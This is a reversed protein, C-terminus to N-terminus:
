LGQGPPYPIQVNFVLKQGILKQSLVRLHETSVGQQLEGTVPPGGANRKFDYNTLKVRGDLEITFTQGYRVPVDLQELKVLGDQKVFRERKASITFTHGHSGSRVSFRLCRSDGYMSLEAGDHFSPVGSHREGSLRIDGEKPPFHRSGACQTSTNSAHRTRHPFSNQDDCDSSCHNDHSKHTFSFTGDPEWNFGEGVGRLKLIGAFDPALYAFFEQELLEIKDSAWFRWRSPKITREIKLTVPLIKIKRSQFPERLDFFQRMQENPLDISVSNQQTNNVRSAELLSVGSIVIDKVKVLPTGFNTGRIQLRYAGEDRYLQSVGEIRKIVIPYDALFTGGLLNEIDMSAEDIAYIATDEAKAITDQLVYVTNVATLVEKDLEALTDDLQESLVIELQRVLLLMQNAAHRIQGDAAVEANNIANNAVGNAQQLVDKLVAGGGLVSIIGQARTVPVQVLGISISLVLVVVFRCISLSLSKLNLDFM